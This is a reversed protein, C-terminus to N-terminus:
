PFVEGAQAVREEEAAAREVDQVTEQDLRMDGASKEVIPEVIQQEDRTRQRDQERDMTCKPQALVISRRGHDLNKGMQQAPRDENFDNAAAQEMAAGAIREVDEGIGEAREDGRKPPTALVAAPRFKM